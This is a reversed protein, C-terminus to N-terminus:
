NKGARSLFSRMITTTEKRLGSRRWQPSQVTSRDFAAGQFPAAVFSGEGIRDGFFEHLLTNYQESMPMTHNLQFQLQALRRSEERDYQSPDRMDIREEVCEM